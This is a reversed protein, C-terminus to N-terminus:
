GSVTGGLSRRIGSTGLSATQMRRVGFVEERQPPVPQQADDSCASMAVLSVVTSAAAVFRAANM